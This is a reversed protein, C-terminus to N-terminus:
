WNWRHISKGTWDIKKLVAALTVDPYAENYDGYGEHVPLPAFYRDTKRKIWNREARVVLADSDESGGPLLGLLMFYTAYSRDVLRPGSGLWRQVIQWDNPMQDQLALSLCHGYAVLQPAEDEEIEEASIPPIDVAGGILSFARAFLDWQPGSKKYGTTDRALFTEMEILTNYGAEFEAVPEEGHRWKFLGLDVYSKALGEYSAAVDALQGRDLKGRIVVPYDAIADLLLSTCWDYNLM